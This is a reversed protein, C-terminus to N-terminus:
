FYYSVHVDILGAFLRTVYYATNLFTHVNLVRMLILTMKDIANFYHFQFHSIYYFM